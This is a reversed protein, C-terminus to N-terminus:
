ECAGYDVIRSYLTPPIDQECETTFSTKTTPSAGEDGCVLTTYQDYTFSGDGGNCSFSRASNQGSNGPWCYCVADPEIPFSNTTLPDGSCDANDWFGIVVRGEGAPIVDCTGPDSGGGPAACGGFLLLGLPAITTIRLLRM